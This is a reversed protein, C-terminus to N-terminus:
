NEKKQKKKAEKDRKINEDDKIKNKCLLTVQSYRSWSYADMLVLRFTVSREM